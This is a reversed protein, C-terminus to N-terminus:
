KINLDTVDIYSLSSICNVCCFKFDYIMDFSKDFRYKFIVYKVPKYKHCYYCFESNVGVIYKWKNDALGLLDIIKM